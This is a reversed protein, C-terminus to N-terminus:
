EATGCDAKRVAAELENAGTAICVVIVIGSVDTAYLEVPPVSVM